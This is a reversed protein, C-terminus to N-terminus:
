AWFTKKDTNNRRLVSGTQGSYGPWDVVNAALFSKLQDLYAMGIQRNRAVLIGIRDSNAPQRNRDTQSNSSLSDFYLGRETLDAGSEEMLMASSLYAVAKRIYVLIALVKEAPKDKIMEAKIEALIEAGLIPFIEMDEVLQMQPKLRLFTLRSRSISVIADFVKTNPIFASKFVTWTPSTNFDDFKEINIELYELAEDLANFGATKFYDKLDDEQYKFLSKQKDSESRKFGGDSITANLVQFGMWYALHSLSKQILNLFGTMEPVNYETSAPDVPSEAYFKTLRTYLSLGLLPEIFATEANQIHPKLREFQTGNGIAIYEQIEPISKLLM